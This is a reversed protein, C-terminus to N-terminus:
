PPCRMPWPGSLMFALESPLLPAHPESGGANGGLVFGSRLGIGLRGCDLGTSSVSTTTAVVGTVVGTAAMRTCDAGAASSVSGALRRSSMAWVLASILPVM